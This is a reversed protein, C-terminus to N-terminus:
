SFSEHYHKDGSFKIFQCASEIELKSFLRSQGSNKLSPIVM